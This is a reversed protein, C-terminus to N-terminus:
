SWEGDIMMIMMIMMIASRELTSKCQTSTRPATWPTPAQRSETDPYNTLMIIITMKARSKHFINSNQFRQAQPRKANTSPWRRTKCNRSCYNHCQTSELVILCSPLLLCYYWYWHYHLVWTSNEVHADKYWLYWWRDNSIMSFRGFRSIRQDAIMEMSAWAM